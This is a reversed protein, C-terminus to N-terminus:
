KKFLAQKFKEIYEQRLSELEPNAMTRAEINVNLSKTESKQVPMHGARDMIDKSANLRVMEGQANQSLHFIMSEAPEAHKSIAEQIKLKRLNQSAMSSAVDYDDTDYNNLVATTGNGSDIYDKVFGKEKKTLKTSM